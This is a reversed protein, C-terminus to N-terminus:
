SNGATLSAGMKIAVSVPMESRGAVGGGRAYTEVGTMKKRREDTQGRAFSLAGLASLAIRENEPSLHM